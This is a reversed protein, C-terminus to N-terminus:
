ASRFHVNPRQKYFEFFSHITNQLSFIELFESILFIVAFYYWRQLCNPALINGGFKSWWEKPSLFWSKLSFIIWIHSLCFLSCEFLFVHKRLLDIKCGIRAFSTWVLFWILIVWIPTLPVTMQLPLCYLYMKVTSITKLRQEQNRKTFVLDLRTTYLFSLGKMISASIM